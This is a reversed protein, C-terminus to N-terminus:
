AVRDFIKRLLPRSQFSVIQEKNVFEKRKSYVGKRHVQYVPFCVPFDYSNGGTQLFFFFASFRGLTDSFKFITNFIPLICELKM